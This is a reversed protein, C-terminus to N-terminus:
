PRAGSRTPRGFVGAEAVAPHELLAAEVEAPAVNEGGTVITDVKRGTVILRGDSTSAASTARACHRRRRGRDPGRRPDRRRARHRGCARCRAASDRHRGARRACRGLLDPHARLHARRALRRRPRALLTPDAPAGGLMVARLRPGPPAGAELLRALQTPVLSAVTVDDRTPRRRAGRDHRRDGVRLLVM